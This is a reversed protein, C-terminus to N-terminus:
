SIVRQCSIIVFIIGQSNNKTIKLRNQVTLIKPFSPSKRPIVRSIRLKEFIIIKSYNKTLLLKTDSPLEECSNKKYQLFKPTSPLAPILVCELFSNRVKPGQSVKPGECCLDSALILQSFGECGLLEITSKPPQLKSSYNVNKCSPECLTSLLGWFGM